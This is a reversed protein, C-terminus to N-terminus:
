SVEVSTIEVTGIIICQESSQYERAPSLTLKM